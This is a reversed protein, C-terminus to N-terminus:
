ATPLRYAGSSTVVDHLGRGDSRFVLPPVVLCILFTRLLAMGLSVPCGDLRRVRIRTVLQGFSGGVLATGFAAELFFVLLPAFSDHQYREVGLAAVTVLSSAVWDVVLALIRRPWSALERSDTSATPRSESM